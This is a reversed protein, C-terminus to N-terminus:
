RALPSMFPSNFILEGKIKESRLDTIPFVHLHALFRLSYIELDHARPTSFHNVSRAGFIRIAHAQFAECLHHFLVPTLM